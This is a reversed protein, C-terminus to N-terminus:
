CNYATASWLDTSPVPDALAVLYTYNGQGGVLQNSLLQILLSGFPSFSSDQRFAEM